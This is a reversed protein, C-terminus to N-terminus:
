VGGTFSGAIEPIEARTASREIARTIIEQGSGALGKADIEELKQQHQQASLDKDQKHLQSIRQSTTQAKVVEPNSMAQRQIDEPTMSVIVDDQSRWGTAQEVRRALEVWNIKKQAATLGQQTAPAMYLQMELPLMQAMARRASRGIRRERCVM